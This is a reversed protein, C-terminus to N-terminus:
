ALKTRGIVDLLSKNVVTPASVLACNTKIKEKKRKIEVNRESATKSTYLSTPAEDNPM